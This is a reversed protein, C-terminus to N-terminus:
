EHSDEGGKMDEYLWCRVGRGPEKYFMPPEAQRCKDTARPCRSAFRCQTVPPTFVPVIGKITDLAPKKVAISPIAGLLGQTYPHLPQAFVQTCEGEEVAVGGYMVLMRDCMEAIIGMNHSILIISMSREDKLKSILELIQAQVTVDLATTPEDALLIEPKCALAIAIMVRQQMGGSLQHPYAKMREKPSPIGVLQLLEEVRKEAEAKPLKEHIKLVEYIQNKVTYVPNLSAFPDQFIMSIRKGRITRLEDIDMKTTDQGDFIVSGGTIKTNLPDILGVLSRAVTSKGCGSEGVIGLVEGKKLTFSVGDVAAVTKKKTYYYTKLDQVNLITEQM